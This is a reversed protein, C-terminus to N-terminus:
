SCCHSLDNKIVQAVLRVVINVIMGIMGIMSTTGATTATATTTTAPPPPIIPIAVFSNSHLLAVCYGGRHYYGLMSEVCRPHLAVIGTM